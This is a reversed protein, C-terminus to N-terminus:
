LVYDILAGTEDTRRRSHEVYEPNIDIGIFRRGLKKAVATTTGSGVFPDLVIGDPPCLLQILQAVVFEPFVAPHRTGKITEVPCEIVDRKMHEGRIRIVTFGKRDMQIKRGGDQGGFAPAHIGRIKMRFGSIRGSRVEEIM